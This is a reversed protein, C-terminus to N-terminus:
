DDDTAAEKDDQDTDIGEAIDSFGFQRLCEDLATSIHVPGRPADHRDSM